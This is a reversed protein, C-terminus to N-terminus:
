QAKTLQYCAAGDRREGSFRILNDRKLESFRGSIANLGKGTAVAYEKASGSGVQRLWALIDAHAKRITPQVREFAAVSQENGGHKRACPDPPDVPFLTQQAM